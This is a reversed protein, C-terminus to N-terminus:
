TSRSRSWKDRQCSETTRPAGRPRSKWSTVSLRGGHEGDGGIHWGGKCGLWAAVLLFIAPSTHVPYTIRHRQTDDAEDDRVHRVM